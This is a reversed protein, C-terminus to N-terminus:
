NFKEPYVFKYSQVYVNSEDINLNLKINKSLFYNVILHDQRACAISFATEGDTNMRNVDISIQSLLIKVIPLNKQFSCAVHLATENKNGIKNIEINNVNCLFRVIKSNACFCAEHLATYGDTNRKQNVDAGISLLYNFVNISKWRACIHLPYCKEFFKEIANSDMIKITIAIDEFKDNECLWILFSRIPIYKSLIELINKDKKAAAIQYYKLATSDDIELINKDNILEKLKDINNDDIADAIMQIYQYNKEFNM